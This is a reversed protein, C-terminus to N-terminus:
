SVIALPPRLIAEHNTSEPQRVKMYLIHCAVWLSNSNGALIRVVGRFGCVQLASSKHSIRRDNLM